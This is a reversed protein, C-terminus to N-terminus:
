HITPTKINLPDHHYHFINIIIEAKKESKNCRLRCYLAWHIVLDPTYNTVCTFVMSRVQVIPVSAPKNATLLTM